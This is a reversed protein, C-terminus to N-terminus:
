YNWVLFYKQFREKKPDQSGARNVYISPSSPWIYNTQLTNPNWIDVLGDSTSSNAANYTLRNFDTLIRPDMDEVFQAHWSTSFSIEGDALEGFTDRPVSTPFCGILRAWYRLTMGDEGVIFKYIAMQDHLIKRYIYQISPPSVEGKWKMKEYMDYMKFWMYVELYKTDKFDINFDFGEDSEYSTGRYSLKTGYVNAATDISNSNIGPLELNGSFANSLLPSFPTKGSDGVSSQLQWAVEKYRELVDQFFSSRRYLEPNIAGTTIDYLHLDPKTIFIYEKTHKNASYPDVIGFRSFKKYWDDDIERNVINYSRMAQDIMSTTISPAKANDLTPSVDYGSQPLVKKQYSRNSNTQDMYQKTSRFLNVQKNTARIKSYLSSTLIRNNNAM